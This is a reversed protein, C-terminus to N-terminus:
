SLDNPKSAVARTGKAVQGFGQLKVNKNTSKDYNM